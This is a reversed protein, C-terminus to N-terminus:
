LLGLVDQTFSLQLIVKGNAADDTAQLLACRILAAKPWSVAKKLNLGRDLLLASQRKLPQNNAGYLSRIQLRKGLLYRM